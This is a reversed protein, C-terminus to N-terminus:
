FHSNKSLNCIKAGTHVYRSLSFLYVRTGFLLCLNTEVVTTSPVCAVLSPIEAVRCVIIAIKGLQFFLTVLCEIKLIRFPASEKYTNNIHMFTALLAMMGLIAYGVALHLAMMQAPTIPPEINTTNM